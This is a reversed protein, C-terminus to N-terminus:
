KEMHLPVALIRGNKKPSSFILGAGDSEHNGESGTYIAKAALTWAGVFEEEKVWGEDDDNLKHLLRQLNDLLNCEYEYVDMLCAHSSYYLDVKAKRYALGLDNIGINM